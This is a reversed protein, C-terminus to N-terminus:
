KRLRNALNDVSGLNLEKQIIPNQTVGSFRQKFQKNIAEDSLQALKSDIKIKAIDSNISSKSKGIDVPKQLERKVLTGDPNTESSGIPVRLKQNKGVGGYSYFRNAMVSGDEDNISYSDGMTDLFKYTVNVNIIRPLKWNELDVTQDVDFGIEWPYTDEIDYTLSEIFGEANKFM